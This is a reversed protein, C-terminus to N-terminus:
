ANYESIDTINSIQANSVGLLVNVATKLSHNLAALLFIESLSEGQPICTWVM